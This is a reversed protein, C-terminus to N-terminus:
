WGKNGKGKNGKNAKNRQGPPGGHPHNPHNKCKWQYPDAIPLVQPLYAPPVYVQVAQGPLLQSYNMRLGGVEFSAHQLPILMSQAGQSLMVGEPYVGYITGRLPDAYALTTCLILPLLFRNLM